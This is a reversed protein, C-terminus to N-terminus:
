QQKPPQGKCIMSEAAEYFSDPAMTRTQAGVSEFYATADFSHYKSDKSDNAIMQQVLGFRGKCDFAVELHSTFHGNQDTTALWAVLYNKPPNRGKPYTDQRVSAMDVYAFDGSTYSGPIQTWNAALAPPAAL